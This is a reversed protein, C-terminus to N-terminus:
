IAVDNSERRESRKVESNEWRQWRAVESWRYVKGM